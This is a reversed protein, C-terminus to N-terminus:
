AFCMVDSSLLWHWSSLARKLLEPDSLQDLFEGHKVFGSPEGSHESCSTVLGISSIWM